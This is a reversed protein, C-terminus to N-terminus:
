ARHLNPTVFRLLTIHQRNQGLMEIQEALNAFAFAARKGHDAGSGVVAMQLHAVIQVVVIRYIQRQVHQEAFRRFGGAVVLGYAQRFFREVSGLDVQFFGGVAYEAQGGHGGFIEQNGDAVAADAAHTVAILHHTFILGRNGVAGHGHHAEVGVAAFRHRHTFFGGDGQEVGGSGAAHRNAFGDGVEGGDVDAFDAVDFQGGVPHGGTAHGTFVFFEVARYFGYRLGALAHADANRHAFVAQRHFGYPLVLALM